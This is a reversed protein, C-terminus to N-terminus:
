DMRPIITDSYAEVTSRIQEDTYGMFYICLQTIGTQQLLKLKELCAEATGVITYAEALEDTVTAAHDATSDTHHRYDYKEHDELCKLFEPPIELKPTFRVLDAVHNAVFAPFGRTLDCAEHLDDSIATPVCCVFDIANPDRGAAEASAKVNGIMWEVTKPEAIQVFVGDAVQGAWALIKPGYGAIYLPIKKDIAWEFRVPVAESGQAHWAEHGPREPQYTIEEGNALRHMLLVDEKFEKLNAQREGIRRLASDGKGIGLLVRGDSLEHLSAHLSANVVLNRSVPNTCCAGLQLKSTALAAHTLSPAMERWVIPSDICYITEFGRDEILKAYPGFQPGSDFMAGFRFM